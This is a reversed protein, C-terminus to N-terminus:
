IFHLIYLYHITNKISLSNQSFLSICVLLFARPPGKRNMQAKKKKYFKHTHTHLIINIHINLFGSLYILIPQNSIYFVGYVHISTYRYSLFMFGCALVSSISFLVHAEQLSTYVFQLPTFRLFSSHFLLLPFTYFFLSAFCWALLLSCTSWVLPACLRCFIVVAPRLHYSGKPTLPRSSRFAEGEKM